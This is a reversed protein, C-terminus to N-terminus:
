LFLSSVERAIFRICSFSNLLLSISSSALRFFLPSIVEGGINVLIIALLMGKWNALVFPPMGTESYFLFAFVGISLSSCIILNKWIWHM